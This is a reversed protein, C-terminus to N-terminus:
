SKRRARQVWAVLRAPRDNRGGSSRWYITISIRKSEIADETGAVVELNLTANPLNSRADDSLRFSKLSSDALEDWPLATAREMLNSAEAVALRRREFARREVAIFGLLQAFSALAVVFLVGAATAEALTFGRRVTHRFHKRKIIM